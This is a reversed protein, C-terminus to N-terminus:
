RGASKARSQRRQCAVKHGCRWHLHQCAESCYKAVNCGSCVKILLRAESLGALQVCGAYSCGIVPLDLRMSELVGRDGGAQAQAPKAEDANVRRLGARLAKLSKVTVSGAPMSKALAAAAEAGHARVM